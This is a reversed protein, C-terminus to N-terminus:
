DLVVVGGGGSRKYRRLYDDISGIEPIRLTRGATVERHINVVGNYAAIFRWLETTGYYHHSIRPLDGAEEARVRHRRSTQITRNMDRVAGGLHDLFAVGDADVVVKKSPTLSYKSAM